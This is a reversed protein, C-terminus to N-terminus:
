QLEKLQRELEVVRNRLHTIEKIAGQMVIYTYTLPAYNHLLNNLQIVVNSTDAKSATNM